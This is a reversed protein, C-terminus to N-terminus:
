KARPIQERLAAIFTDAAPSLTRGRRWRLAAIRTLDAHAIPRVELGANKRVALRSAITAFPGSEVLRMLSEVNATEVRVDLALEARAFATDIQRRMAFGPNLLALPRRAIDSLSAPSRSSKRADARYVLMLREDFLTQQEIDANSLHSFAVGVDIEGALLGRDIAAAPLEEIAVTLHPHLELMCAIAPIVLARAYTDIAGVRLSGRVEGSKAKASILVSDLRLLLPELEGFLDAGAPTLQIGRGVRDFLAIGVLASLERLHQSLAPQTLHLADAAKTVSALRAATIFSRLLRLDVASTNM